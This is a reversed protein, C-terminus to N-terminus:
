RGMRVLHIGPPRLRPHDKIFDPLIELIGDVLVKEAEPLESAFSQLQLPLRLDDLGQLPVGIWWEGSTPGPSHFYDPIEAELRELLAEVRGGLAGHHEADFPRGYILSLRQRAM